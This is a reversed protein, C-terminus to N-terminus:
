WVFLLVGHELGDEDADVAQLATASREGERSRQLTEKAAVEDGDVGEGEVIVEAAPRSISPLVEVLSTCSAGQGTSTSVRATPSPVSAV